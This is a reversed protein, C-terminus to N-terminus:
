LESVLHLPPEPFRDGGLAALIEPDVAAYRALLQDLEAGLDHRRDLEDLLESMLRPIRCVREVQRQRRLSEVVRGIAPM